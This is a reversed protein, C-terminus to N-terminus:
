PVISLARKILIRADNKAGPHPMELTKDIKRLLDRTMELSTALDEFDQQLWILRVNSLENDM